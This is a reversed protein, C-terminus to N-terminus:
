GEVANEITINKDLSFVDTRHSMIAQVSVDNLRFVSKVIDTEYAEVVGEEKAASMM